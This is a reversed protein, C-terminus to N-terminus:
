KEKRVGKFAGGNSKADLFRGSGTDRKIWTGSRPNKVQTRAKVAGQRSGRGTNKAM